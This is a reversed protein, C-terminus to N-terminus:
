FAFNVPDALQIQGLCNWFTFDEEVIAPGQPGCGCDSRLGSNEVTLGTIKLMRSM